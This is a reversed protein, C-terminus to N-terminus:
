IIASDASPYYTSFRVHFITRFIVIRDEYYRISSLRLHLYSYNGLFMDIAGILHLRTLRYEEAM